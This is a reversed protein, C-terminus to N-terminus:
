CSKRPRAGFICSGIRVVDAGQWIAAEFDTSMGMSLLMRRGKELSETLKVDEGWQDDKHESSLFEELIIRTEELRVFDQNHGEIRSEAISGITMLGTLHLGPCKKIVHRCLDLASSVEESNCNLKSLPVIGSKSNESSTNVQIFVRLPESRDASLHKSLLTAIKSSTLTHFAYLNPIELLPSYYTL